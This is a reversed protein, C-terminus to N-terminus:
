VDPSGVVPRYIHVKLLGTAGANITWSTIKGFSRVMMEFDLSVHATNLDINFNGNDTARGVSFSTISAPVTVIFQSDLCQMPNQNSNPGLRVTM